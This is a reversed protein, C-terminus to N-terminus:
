NQEDSFAKLGFFIFGVSLNPCDKVVEDFASDFVRTYSSEDHQKVLNGNNDYEALSWLLARFEIRDYGNRYYKRLM